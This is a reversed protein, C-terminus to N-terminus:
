SWVGTICGATRTDLTTIDAGPDSGGTGTGLLPSGAELAGTTTNLGAAADSVPKINGSPYTASAGIIANGTVSYTADDYVANLSATGEGVGSAKIGFGAKHVVNDEFTFNTWQSGANATLSMLNGINTSRLETINRVDLDNIQGVLCSGGTNGGLDARGVGTLLIDHIAIQSTGVSPYGFDSQINNINFGMYVNLLKCFRFVVDRTESTPDTNSQNSSKFNVAYSQAQPFFNEMVCDEVLVRIGKKLEFLNKSTVYVGAYSAHFSCWTLPKYFYSRRITIDEPQTGVLFPDTGGLMFNEAGAVLLCNDILMPGRFCAGNIAQGELGVDGEQWIHCSHFIVERCNLSFPRTCRNTRTTSAHCRDFVIKDAMQSLSTPTTIGVEVLRSSSTVSGGDVAIGVFVFGSAGAAFKIAPSGGGNIQRFIPMNALDDDDVRVGAAPLSAHSASRVYVLTTKDTLDATGSLSPFTQQPNASTTYVVGATLHIVDGRALTFGDLTGGSLLTALEAATDPVHTRGATPPDYTYSPTVRPLEAPGDVTAAAAITGASTGPKTECTATITVSGEAVATVTCTHADTGSDASVTAIAGSSTGWTVTRGPTFNNSADRPSASLVQTGGANINFTAPSVVVSDVAAQPNTISLTATTAQSECRVTIVPSGVSVATILGSSSVTALATNSSEYTVTRDTLVIAQPFSGEVPIETSLVQVVLQYTDNPAFNAPAQSTITVSGVAPTRPKVVNIGRRRTVGFGGYM